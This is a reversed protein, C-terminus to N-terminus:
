QLDNNPLHPPQGWRYAGDNVSRLLHPFICLLLADDDIDAPEVFHQVGFCGDQSARTSAHRRPPMPAVATRGLSLTSSSIVQSGATGLPELQRFQFSGSRRLTEFM